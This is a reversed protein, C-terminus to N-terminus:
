IGWKNKHRRVLM